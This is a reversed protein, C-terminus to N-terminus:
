TATVRQRSRLISLIEPISPYALRRRTTLDFQRAISDDLLYQVYLRVYEDRNALTVAVNGGNLVLDFTKQEGWQEFSVQMVLGLSDIDDDSQM